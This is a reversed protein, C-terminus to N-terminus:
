VSCRRNGDSRSPRKPRQLLRIQLEIITANRDYVVAERGAAQELRSREVLQRATERLLEEPDILTALRMGEPERLLIDRVADVIARDLTAPDPRGTEKWRARMARMRDATQRRVRKLRAGGTELYAHVPAYDPERM